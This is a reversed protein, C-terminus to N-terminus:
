RTPGVEEIIRTLQEPAESTTLHGGPLMRIDLGLDGLRERAKVVQNPEFIDGESGVVHFSVSDGLALFLRRLDWREAYHTQHEARFGAGRSLFRFGDRRNIAGYMVDLEESSVDYEKSFMSKLLPNAMFRFRQGGWTILGGLPTDLTPTTWWPHSHADAFLGGNVFLVGEIHVGDHSGREHREEQRSLLELAVLSSYDFTVLFTSQVGRSAM